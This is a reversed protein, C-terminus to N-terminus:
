VLAAKLEELTLNEMWREYDDVMDDDTGHYDKAHAETLKEEQEVTLNEIIDGKEKDAARQILLKENKRLIAFFQDEAAETILKGGEVGLFSGGVNEGDILFTIEFEKMDTFEM